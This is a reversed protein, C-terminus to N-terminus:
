FMEGANCTWTQIVMDDRCESCSHAGQSDKLLQIEIICVWKNQGPLEEGAKQFLRTHVCFLIMIYVAAVLAFQAVLAALVVHPCKTSSKFSLESYFIERPGRIQPQLTDDVAVHLQIRAALCLCPGTHCMIGSPATPHHSPSLLKDLFGPPVASPFCLPRAGQKTCVCCLSLEKWEKNVSLKYKHPM